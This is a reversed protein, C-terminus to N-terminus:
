QEPKKDNPCRPFTSRDEREQALALRPLSAIETLAAQVTGDPFFHVEMYKPHAVKGAAVTVEAEKFFSYLRDYVENSTTSRVHFYCAGTQWRVSIKEPPLYRVCCVTGGGGSTPTSVSINGGGQGNVSFSDIYRNTYNYGTLALSAAGVPTEAQRGAVSPQAVAGRDCAALLAVAALALM